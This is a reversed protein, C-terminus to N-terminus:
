SINYPIYRTTAEEGGWAVKEVGQFDGLGKQIRIQYMYSVLSLSPSVYKLGPVLLIIGLLFNPLTCPIKPLNSPIM